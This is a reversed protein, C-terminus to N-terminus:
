FSLWTLFAINISDTQGEPRPPYSPLELSM